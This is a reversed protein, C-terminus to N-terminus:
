RRDDIDMVANDHCNNEGLSPSATEDVFIGWQSLACENGAASGATSAGFYIGVEGNQTITNGTLEPASNEIVSIGYLGNSSILNDKAIGAAGYAYFIGSNTNGSILNNQILPTSPDVVSIGSVGNGTFENGTVRGTYGAGTLLGNYGNGIFFSNEISVSNEGILQLGHLGNNEFRSNKVSGTKTILVLGVGTGSQADSFVGGSFECESIASNGMTSLYIVSGPASGTYRFSIGTLSINENLPAIELVPSQNSTIVTLNIGDGIITIGKEIRISELLAYTGSKLFITAGPQVKKIAEDLSTFNGSGDLAVTVTSPVPTLTPNAPESTATAAPRIPFNCSTLLFVLILCVGIQKIM